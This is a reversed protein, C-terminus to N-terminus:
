LENIKEVKWIDEAPWQSAWDIDPSEHFFEQDKENATLEVLRIVRFGSQQFADIWASHSLSVVLPSKSNKELRINKFKNSLQKEMRGNVRSYCLQALESYTCIVLYGHIKLTRNVERLAPAPLSFDFAGHNCYAIDFFNDPFPMSEVPACQYQCRGHQRAIDIMRQSLDIGYCDMGHEAWGVLNHGVGCGIDLLKSDPRIEELLKLETESRYWIGWSPFLKANAFEPHSSVYKETNANWYKKNEELYKM